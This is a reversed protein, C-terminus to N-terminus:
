LRQQIKLLTNRECKWKLFCMRQNCCDHILTSEMTFFCSHKRWKRLRLTAEAEAATLAGLGWWSVLLESQSMCVWAMWRYWVSWMGTHNSFQVSNISDVEFGLVQVCSSSFWFSLKVVDVFVTEHLCKNNWKDGKWKQVYESLPQLPQM